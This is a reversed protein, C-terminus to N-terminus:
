QEILARVGADVDAQTELRHIMAVRRGEITPAHDKGFVPAWKEPDHEQTARTRARRLPIEVGAHHLSVCRAPDNRMVGVKRKAGLGFPYRWRPWAKEASSLKSRARWVPPRKRSRMSSM